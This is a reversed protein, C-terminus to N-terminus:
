AVREFQVLIAQALLLGMWVQAKAERGLNVSMADSCDRGLSKLSPDEMTFTTHSACAEFRRTLLTQSGYRTHFLLHHRAYLGSLRACEFGINRSSISLPSTFIRCTM